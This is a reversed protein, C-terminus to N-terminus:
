KKGEGAVPSEASWFRLPVVFRIDGGAPTPFSLKRAARLVCLTVREDPFRSEVEFAEDTKGHDTVHFRVGLRGWLGPAYALAPEYCAQLVPQAAEIV